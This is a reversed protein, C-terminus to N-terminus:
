QLLGQMGIDTFYLGYWGRVNNVVGRRVNNLFTQREGPPLAAATDTVCRQITRSLHNRTLMRHGTDRCWIKYSNYLGQITVFDGSKQSRAFGDGDDVSPHVGSMTAVVCDSFWIRAPDSEDKWDNMIKIQGVSPANVICNCQDKAWEEAFIDLAWKAIGDLEGSLKSRLAYDREEQPVTWEFPIYCIRSEVGSSKDRSRPLNNGAFWFVSKNQMAFGDKGKAEVMMTDGSILMKFAADAILEGVGIEGAFNALKGVLQSPAFQSGIHSISLYSSNDSGGILEGVIDMVVSKGSDPPGYLYIAKKLWPMSEVMSYGIFVALQRKRLTSEGDDQCWLARDIFKHWEVPKDINEYGKNHPNTRVPLVTRKYSTPQHKKRIWSATKELGLIEDFDTQGNMGLHFEGDLMNVIPADQISYKARSLEVASMGSEGGDWVSPNRHIVVEIMRLVSSIAGATISPFGAISMRNMIEKSVGASALASWKGDGSWRWFTNQNYLFNEKNGFTNIVANVIHLQTVTERNETVNTLFNAVGSSRVRMDERLALLGIGTKEKIELLITEIQSPLLGAAESLETMFRGTIESTDILSRLKDLWLRTVDASSMRASVGDAGLPVQSSGIGSEGPVESGDESGSDGTSTPPVADFHIDERIISGIRTTMFKIQHECGVGKLERILTLATISVGGVNSGDRSLSNWHKGIQGDANEYLHDQTAWAAFVDMAETTGATAFHCSAILSFFSSYERYNEPALAVLLGALEAADLVGWGHKKHFLERDSDSQHEIKVGRAVSTQLAEVLKSPCQWGSIIASPAFTYEKGNAGISGPIVVQRGNSLFDIGPYDPSKTPINPYSGDELQTLNLYIHWGGSPTEVTIPSWQFQPFNRQLKDWSALGGNRPDVDVILMGKKVRYGINDGREIYREIGKKTYKVVNGDTWNNDLPRKGELPILDMTNQFYITSAQLLNSNQM